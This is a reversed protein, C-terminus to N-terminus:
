ASIYDVAKEYIASDMKIGIFARNLKKCARGTAGSGM